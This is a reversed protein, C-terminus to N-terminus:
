HACCQCTSQIASGIQMVWVEEPTVVQIGAAVAAQTDVMDVVLTDVMDVALTDVAAVEAAVVEVEVNADFTVDVLAVM